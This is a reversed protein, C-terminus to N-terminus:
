DHVVRRQAAHKILDLTLAEQHLIIAHRREQFYFFYIGAPVATGLASPRPWLGHSINVALMAQQASGAAM